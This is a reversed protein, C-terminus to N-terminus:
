SLTPSDNGHSLEARYLKFLYMREFFYSFDTNTENQDKESNPLAIDGEWGDLSGSPSHSLENPKNLKLFYKQAHSRIQSGSRSGIM